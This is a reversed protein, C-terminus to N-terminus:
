GYFVRRGLVRFQVVTFAVIILVFIFSMASGLGIGNVATREFFTHFILLPVTRTTDLPGGNTLVYIQNFSRMAGVSAIIAVFFIAPSLLPITIRRLIQRENAGDIRAAEYLERSISTLGALFVITQFGVFHWVTFISVAVLSLGPGALADPVGLGAAAGLMQFIGRPERLWAQAGIGVVGLAENLIGFNADFIWEFITAAAVVSTIYPMVYVVRYAGRGVTGQYLVFALLLAIAMEVPVTMLVYWATVGLANVFEGFRAGSPDLIAAYNELGAFREYIVGWRTLSIALAALGPLVHFVGILLLAPAIFLYAQLHELRRRRDRAAARARATWVEAAM